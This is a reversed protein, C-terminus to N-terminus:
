ALGVKYYKDDHLFYTLKAKNFIPHVVCGGLNLDECVFIKTRIMLFLHPAEGVANNQFFIFCM